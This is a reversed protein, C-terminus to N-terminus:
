AAIQFAVTLPEGVVRKASGPRTWRQRWQTLKTRLYEPELGLAACVNLFSFVWSTNDAFIWQEAEHALRKHRRSPTLAQQQICIIADELMAWLLAQVGSTPHSSRTACVYFQEPLVSAPSLLREAVDEEVLMQESTPHYAKSETDNTRAHMTEM